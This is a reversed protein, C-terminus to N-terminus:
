NCEKESINLADLKSCLETVKKRLKNIEDNKNQFLRFQETPGIEKAKQYEIQSKVISLETKLSEIEDKLKNNLSNLEDYRKELYQKYKQVNEKLNSTKNFEEIVANATLDGFIEQNKNYRSLVGRLASEYYITVGILLVLLTIVLLLLRRNIDKQM